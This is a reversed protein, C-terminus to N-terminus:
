PIVDLRRLLFAPPDIDLDTGIAFHGEVLAEDGALFVVPAHAFQGTAVIGVAFGLRRARFEGGGRLVIDFQVPMGGHAMGQQALRLQSQTQHDGCAMAPDASQCVRGSGCFASLSAVASLM